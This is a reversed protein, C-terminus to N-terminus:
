GAPLSFTTSGGAAIGTREDTGIKVKYPGVGGSPSVQIAGNAACTANTVVGAGTVGVGIAIKPLTGCKPNITSPSNELTTCTENPSASTWALFLNIIELTEGCNITIQTTTPLFNDSNKAVPGACAFIATGTGIENGDSDYRKLTGWLAFSTRTSGTKNRIGLVLTRTGSCQCPDNAPPPLTASILELDKSTCADPSPFTQAFVGSSLLLGIMCSLVASPTLNKSVNKKM